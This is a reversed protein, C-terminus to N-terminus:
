GMLNNYNVFESNCNAIITIIAPIDYNHLKKITAECTNKLNKKTKLILIVENDEKIEKEWIYLSKVNPVINACLILKKILLEKAILKATDEKDCPVYLLILQKDKNM